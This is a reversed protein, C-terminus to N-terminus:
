SIKSWSPLVSLLHMAGDRKAWAVTQAGNTLVIYSVPVVVNYRLAQQLVNESLSIAPEKCEVLMVPKHDKNYILIDFRKRLDNLQLEKEVAMYAAPYQLTCVLYQIFNQRVWEEETLIIWRKRITCFIQRKGRDEKMKFVPDPYRVPIM